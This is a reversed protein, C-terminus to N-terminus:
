TPSLRDLWPGVNDELTSCIESIIRSNEWSASYMYIKLSLEACVQGGKAPPNLLLVNVQPRDEPFHPSLKINLVFSANEYSFIAAVYEYLETDYEAVSSGFHALCHAIFERRKIFNNVIHAAEEEIVRNTRDIYEFIHCNPWVIPTQINQLPKTATLTAQFQMDDGDIRVLLTLLIPHGREFQHVLGQPFLCTEIDYKLKLVVSFSAKSIDEAVLRMEMQKFYDPLHEKLLSEELKWRDSKILELRTREYSGLQKVLGQILKVFRNEDSSDWSNYIDIIQTSADLRDYPSPLVFDPAERAQQDLFLVHCRLPRQNHTLQLVFQSGLEPSYKSDSPLCHTVIPVAELGHCSFLPYVVSFVAPTLSGRLDRPLKHDDHVSQHIARIGM